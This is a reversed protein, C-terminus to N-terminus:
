KGGPKGILMRYADREAEVDGGVVREQDSLGQLM